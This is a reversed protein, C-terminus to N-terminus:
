IQKTGKIASCVRQVEVHILLVSDAGTACGFRADWIPLYAMLAHIWLFQNQALSHTHIYDVGM